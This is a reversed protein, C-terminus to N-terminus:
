IKTATRVNGLFLTDAIYMEFDLLLTWIGLLRLGPRTGCKKCKVLTIQFLLLVPIMLSAVWVATINRETLFYIVAVLVFLLLVSSARFLDIKM